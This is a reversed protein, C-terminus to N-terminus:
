VLFHSVAGTVANYVVTNHIPVFQGSFNLNKQRFLNLTPFSNVFQSGTLIKVGEQAASGGLFAAVSHLCAGGYRCVEHVHEDIGQFSWSLSAEILSILHEFPIQGCISM